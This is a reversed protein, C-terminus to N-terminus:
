YGSSKFVDAMTPIEERIMSRGMCVATAGNDMADRGTLLQGRTPTSMPAVHFDTFRVSQSHLKDLNPTELVPNGHVSFDGYGQDDTLILIVDPRGKEKGSKQVPMTCSNLTGTGALSGLVILPIGSNFGIKEFSNTMM